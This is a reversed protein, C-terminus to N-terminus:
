LQFVHHLRRSIWGGFAPALESPAFRETLLTMPLGILFSGSVNVVLTGMPFRGGIRGMIASGATYRALSGM